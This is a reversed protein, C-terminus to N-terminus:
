RRVRRRLRKSRRSGRPAEDRAQSREADLGHRSARNPKMEVPRNPTTTIYRRLIDSPDFLMAIATGHSRREM